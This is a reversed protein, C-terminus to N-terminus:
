RRPVIFTAWLWVGYTTAAISYISLAIVWRPLRDRAALLMLVFLFPEFDLAHRMGYQTFGNVYYLFSPAAVLVTAIWLARVSQWPQRAWIAFVLAPSTWTLATGRLFSTTM